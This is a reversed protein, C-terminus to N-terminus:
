RINNKHKYITIAELWYMRWRRIEIIGTTSCSLIEKTHKSNKLIKMIKDFRYRTKGHDLTFKSCFEHLNIDLLLFKELLSLDNGISIMQFEKYITELVKKKQKDTSKSHFAGLNFVKKIFKKKLNSM